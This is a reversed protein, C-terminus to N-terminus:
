QRDSLPDIGTALVSIADDLELLAAAAWWLHDQPTGNGNPDGRHDRRWEREYFGALVRDLHARGVRRETELQAVLERADVPGEGALQVTSGATLADFVAMDVHDEITWFRVPNVIRHNWIPWDAPRWCWSLPLKPFRLLWAIAELHPPRAMWPVVESPADVVLVIEVRDLATADTLLEGHVYGAVIKPELWDLRDLSEAVEGLRGIATSRKVIRTQWEGWWGISRRGFINM